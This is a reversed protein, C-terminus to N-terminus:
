DVTSRSSSASDSEDSEAPRARKRGRGGSSRGGASRGRGRGRKAEAKPEGLVERELEELGHYEPLTGRLREANRRLIDIMGVIDQGTLATRTTFGRCGQWSSSIVWMLTEEVGHQMLARAGPTLQPDGGGAGAFMWKTLINFYKAPLYLCQVPPQGEHLAILARRSAGRDGGVSPVHSAEQALLEKYKKHQADLLEHKDTGQKRKSDQSPAARGRKISPVSPCSPLTNADSISELTQPFALQKFARRVDAVYITSRGERESDHVLELVLRHLIRLAIERVVDFCTYQVGSYMGTGMVVSQGSDTFSGVGCPLGMNDLRSSPFAEMVVTHMSQRKPARGSTLEAMAQYHSREMEGGANEM